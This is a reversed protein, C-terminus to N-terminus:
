ESDVLISYARILDLTLINSPTVQTVVQKEDNVNITYISNNPDSAIGTYYSFYIISKHVIAPAGGYEQVLTRASYPKPLVSNDTKQDVILCRGDSPSEQLYYIKNTASDVIM